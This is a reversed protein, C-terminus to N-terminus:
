ARRFHRRWVRERAAADAFAETQTRGQRRFHLAEDDLYLGGDPIALSGSAARRLRSNEASRHQEWAPALSELSVPEPRFRYLPVFRMRERRYAELVLGEESEVLHLLEGYSKLDDREALAIPQRPWPGFGVDVLYTQDLEVLLAMHDGPGILESFRRSEEDYVEAALYTVSFGIKKLLVGFALNLLPGPGGGTEAVVLSCAAAEEFAPAAGALLDLNHVPVGLLHRDQLRELGALSVDPARAFELRRLYADLDM